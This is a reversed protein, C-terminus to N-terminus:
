RMVRRKRKSKGTFFFTPTIKKRLEFQQFIVFNGRNQFIQIKKFVHLDLTLNLVWNNFQIWLITNKNHKYCFTYTM